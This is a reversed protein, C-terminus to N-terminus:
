FRWFFGGFIALFIAYAIAYIAFLIIAAPISALALKVMFVVMSWFRMKVDTVVVEHQTDIPM